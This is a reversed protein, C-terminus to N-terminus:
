AGGTARETLKGFIFKLDGQNLEFVRWDDGLEGNPFAAKAEATLTKSGGLLTAKVVGAKTVHCAKVTWLEYRTPMDMGRPPPKRYILTQGVNFPPTITGTPLM